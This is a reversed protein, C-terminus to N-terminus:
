DTGEKIQAWAMQFGVAWLIVRQNLRKGIDAFSSEWWDDSYKEFLEVLETPYTRAGALGCDTMLDLMREFDDNFEELADEDNQDVNELYKAKIEALDTEQDKWDYTWDDSTCQFKGMYYYVDSLYHALNDPQVENYWCAISDGLDGSVILAGRKIDLIYRVFYDGTGSVHRWDLVLLNEDQHVLKAKHDAFRQRAKEKRETITREM